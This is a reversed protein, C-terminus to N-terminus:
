GALITAGIALAGAIVAVTLMGDIGLRCIARLGRYGGLIVQM